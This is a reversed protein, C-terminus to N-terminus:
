VGGGADVLRISRSIKPDRKVVGKRELARLHDNVGNTSKIALADGLERLTPAYGRESWFSAIADRVDRQRQTLGYTV